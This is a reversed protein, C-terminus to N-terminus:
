LSQFLTWKEKGTIFVKFLLIIIIMLFTSSFFTFYTKDFLGVVLSPRVFIILYRDSQQVSRITPCVTIVNQENAENEEVSVESSVPIM